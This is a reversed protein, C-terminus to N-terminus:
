RSNNKMESQRMPMSDIRSFIANLGLQKARYKVGTDKGILVVSYKKTDFYREIITKSFASSISNTYNSSVHIETQKSDNNSKEQCFFFWIIHRDDISTQAQELLNINNQCDTKANVLILRNKWEFPGLDSLSQAALSNPMFIIFVILLVYRLNTINIIKDTHKKFM